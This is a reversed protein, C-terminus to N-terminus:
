TIFYEKWYTEIHNAGKILVIEKDDTVTLKAFLDGTMYRIDLIDGALMLIPQDILEANNEADWTQRM